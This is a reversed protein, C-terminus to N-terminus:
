HLYGIEGVVKSRDVPAIYSNPPFYMKVKNFAIIQTSEWVGVYNTGGLYNRAEEGSVYFIFYDM